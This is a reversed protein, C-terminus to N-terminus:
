NEIAAARSLWAKAFKWRRAATRESWHLVDAAESLTYGQLCKLDVFQALDPDLERLEVMAVLVREVAADQVSFSQCLRPLQSQIFKTRSRYRRGSDVLTQRSVTQAMKKLASDPEGELTHEWAMLKLIVENTLATPQLTHGGRERSLLRHSLSKLWPYFWYLEKEITQRLM